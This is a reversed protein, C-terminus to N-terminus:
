LATVLARSKQSKTPYLDHGDFSQFPANMASELLANDRIGHVGGYKDILAAQLRILGEKSITIM